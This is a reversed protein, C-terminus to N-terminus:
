RTLMLLGVVICLGAAMLRLTGQKVAHGTHVGLAIGSLQWVTVWGAAAFDVSGYNLNGITGFIAAVIQLVQSVGIAALPLFGLLLMMPVSFLPGGAGSLGSLFGSVVGVCGLLFKNSGDRYHVRKQQTPWLLYTGALVTIVGITLALVNPDLMSNAKAGVYSFIVAGACVPVTTKWDITGRRQFLWTSLAGTFLLSFLATASAEHVSLGGLIVLFPVLLIGGVSVAGIFFGVVAAIAAMYLIELGL